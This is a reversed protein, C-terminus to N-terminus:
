KTMKRLNWKSLRADMTVLKDGDEKSVMGETLRVYTEFKFDTGCVQVVAYPKDAIGEYIGSVYSRDVTGTQPYGNSNVFQVKDGAVFPFKIDVEKKVKDTFSLIM